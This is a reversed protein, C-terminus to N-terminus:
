HLHHGDQNEKSSDQEQPIPPTSNEGRGDLEHIKKEDEKIQKLIEAL